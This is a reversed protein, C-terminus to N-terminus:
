PRESGHDKEQEDGRHDASIVVAPFRLVVFPNFIPPVHSFRGPSLIDDGDLGAAFLLLLLLLTQRRDLARYDNVTRNASRDVARQVRHGRSSRIQGFRM